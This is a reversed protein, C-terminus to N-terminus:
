TRQRINEAAEGAREVVNAAKERVQHGADTIRDKVQSGASVIRDFGSEATELLSSGLRRASGTLKKRTETGKEPAFLLGIAAGAAIGGLFAFLAKTNGSTEM